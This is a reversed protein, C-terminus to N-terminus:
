AKVKTVKKSLKKEMKIVQKGNYKGCTPCVHHNRKPGGCASCAVIPTTEMLKARSGNAFTKYRRASRSKSQKRKPVPHKM